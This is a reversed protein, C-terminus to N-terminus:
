IHEAKKNKFANRQKILKNMSSKVNILYIPMIMMKAMIKIREM